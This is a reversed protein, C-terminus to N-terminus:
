DLPGRRMRLYEFFRDTPDRFDLLRLAKQQDMPFQVRGTIEHAKFQRKALLRLITQEVAKDLPGDYTAAGVVSGEADVKLVLGTAVHLQPVSRTVAERLREADSAQRKQLLTRLAHILPIDATRDDPAALFDAVIKEILPRVTTASDALRVLARQRLEANASRLSQLWM